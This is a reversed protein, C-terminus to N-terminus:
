GGACTRFMADALRALAAPGQRFFLSPEIAELEMLMPAGDDNRALDVRAYGPRAGTTREALAIARAAFAREDDAIEVADGSVAERGDAFRPNKRIAHTVEGDIWILSREGYGDVSAVYPQVLMDRQAVQAAFWRANAIGEPSSWEAGCRRTEFSGCSVAPKAVLEDWDAASALAALSRSAGKRVLRTPVVPLGAAALGVLYGKHVNWRVLAPPNRLRDGIRDVWALFADTALHYNWTSRLLVVPADDWPADPDDWALTKCDLGRATLAEVLLPHDLDPEPLTVCTALALDM